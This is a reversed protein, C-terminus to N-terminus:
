VIRRLVIMLCAINFFACYIRLSRDYRAALRRFNGLWGITREVIGRRRLRNWLPDSDRAKDAIVRVPKQRPRGARHHRGV